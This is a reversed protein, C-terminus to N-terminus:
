DLSKNTKIRFDTCNAIYYIQVLSTCDQREYIVPSLNHKFLLYRCDKRRDERQIQHCRTGSGAWLCFRCCSICLVCCRSCAILFVLVLHRICRLCLLVGRSSGPGFILCLTLRVRSTRLGPCALRLLGPCALCLLGPCALRLLGAVTLRLCACLLRFALRLRSGM